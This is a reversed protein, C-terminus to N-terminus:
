LGKIKLGDQCLNCAGLSIRATQKLDVLSTGESILKYCLTKKVRYKKIVQDLIMKEGNVALWISTRRNHAQTQRSAWRCNEPEYGRANDFRDLSFGKAPRKGVDALFCEFGTSGNEGHRWRDCVKVGRAGYNKYSRANQRECRTIMNQWCCYEPTRVGAISAGIARLCGCSKSNGSLLDRGSVVRKAGCNCLCFWVAGRSGEKAFAIVRLRGFVRDRLDPSNM